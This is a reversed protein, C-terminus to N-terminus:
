FVIKQLCFLVQIKLKVRTVKRLSTQTIKAIKIKVDTERAVTTNKTLIKNNNICSNYNILFNTM